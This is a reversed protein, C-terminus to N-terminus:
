TFHLVYRLNVKEMSFANLSNQTSNVIVYNIHLNFKQAFNKLILVDLGKPGHIKTKPIIVFPKRQSLAVTIQLKQVRNSQFNHEIDASDTSKALSFKLLFILLTLLM